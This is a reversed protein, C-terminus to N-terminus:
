RHYKREVSYYGGSIGWIYTVTFNNEDTITGTIASGEVSISKADWDVTLTGKYDYEPLDTRNPEVKISTSSAREVKANYTATPFPTTIFSMGTFKNFAVEETVSWSGVLKDVPAPDEKESCSMVCFLALFLSTVRLLM